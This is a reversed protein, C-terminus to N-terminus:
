IHLRYYKVSMHKKLEILNEDNINYNTSVACLNKRYVKVENILIYKMTM